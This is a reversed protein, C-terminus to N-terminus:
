PCAPVKTIQNVVVHVKVYKELTSTGKADVEVKGVKGLTTGTPAIVMKM